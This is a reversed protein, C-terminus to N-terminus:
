TYWSVASRAQASASWTAAAKPDTAATVALYAYALMSLTVHRYWGDYRRVQYHDLGTEGKAHKSCEEIAWRTGAVQVLSEIPTGDPGACLYLALDDPDTV